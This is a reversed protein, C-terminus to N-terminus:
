ASFLPSDFMDGHCTGRVMPLERVTVGAGITDDLMIAVEPSCIM